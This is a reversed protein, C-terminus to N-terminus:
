ITDGKPAKTKAAKLKKPKMAQNQKHNRWAKKVKEAFFHVIKKRSIYLIVIESLLLLIIVVIPILKFVYLLAARDVLIVATNEWYPYSVLKTRVSREAFTTLRNLLGRDTFRASNEVIEVMSENVGINKNLIDLAFGTVPNPMCLEYCTVPLSGNLEALLSYSMFMRGGEGYFQAYDPDVEVVGSIYCRRGNVILDYGVVDPSGFFQWALNNDIVIQDNLVRETPDFYQGSLLKLRHFLFFDGGVGTATARVNAKVTKGTEPSLRSLTVDSEASYAYAYIRANENAASISANVLESDLASVLSNELMGSDVDAHPSIFATLQAYNVLTGDAAWRSCVQQSDLKTSLSGQVLTSIGILLLCVITVIGATIQFKKM